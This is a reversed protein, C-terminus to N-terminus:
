FLVAHKFVRPSTSISSTRVSPTAAPSVEEIKRTCRREPIIGFGGDSRPESSGGGAVCRAVLVRRPRAVHLSSRCEEQAQSALQHVPSSLMTLPQGLRSLSFLFVFNSWCSKNNIKYLLFFLLSSWIHATRFCPTYVHPNLVLFPVYTTCGYM